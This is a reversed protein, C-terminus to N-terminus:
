ICVETKMRVQVSPGFVPFLDYLHDLAFFDEFQSYNSLADVYLHDVRMTAAMNLDCSWIGTM